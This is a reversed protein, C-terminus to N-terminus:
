IELGMRVIPVLEDLMNKKVFVNDLKLTVTKVRPVTNMATVPQLFILLVLDYFSLLHQVTNAIIFTSYYYIYTCLDLSKIRLKVINNILLM